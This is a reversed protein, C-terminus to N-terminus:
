PGFRATYIFVADEDERNWFSFDSMGFIGILANLFTKSAISSEQVETSIIEGNYEVVMRLTVTGATITEGEAQLKNFVERGRCILPALDHLISTKTRPGELIRLNNKDTYVSTRCDEAPATPKTQPPPAPSFVKVLMLAVGAAVFIKIWNGKAPFRARNQKQM